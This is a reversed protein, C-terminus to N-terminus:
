VIHSYRMVHFIVDNAANPFAVGAGAAEAVEPSESNARSKPICFLILM